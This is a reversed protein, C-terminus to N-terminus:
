EGCVWVCMFSLVGGGVGQSTERKGWHQVALSIWSWQGLASHPLPSILANRCCDAGILNVQINGLFFSRCMTRRGLMKVPFLPCNFYMCFTMGVENVITLFTFTNRWLRVLTSSFKRTIWHKKVDRGFQRCVYGLLGSSSRADESTNDNTVWWWGIAAARTHEHGLVQPPSDYGRGIGNRM